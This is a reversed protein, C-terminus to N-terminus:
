SPPPVVPCTTPHPNAAKYARLLRKDPAPPLAGQDVYDCSGVRVMVMQSSQLPDSNESYTALTYPTAAQLDVGCLGDNGGTVILIIDGSQIYCPAKHVKKVKMAYYVDNNGFEDTTTLKIEDIIRGTLVISEPEEYLTM